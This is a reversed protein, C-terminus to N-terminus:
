SSRLPGVVVFGAGGLSGTGVTVAGGHAEVLEKVIALGLGTGGQDRRRSEDLRTFRDFVRRRDAEPIGPGDDEVTLRWTPSTERRLDVRVSSAAHVSANDLLNRVVRVIADGNLLTQVPEVGTRDFTVGPRRLQVARVEANVLDDLDVLEMPLPHPSGERRALVLLDDLLAAARDLQAISAEIAADASAPKGLSVELTARVGALPSRLEHAADSAFRRQADVSDALRDLTRNFSEGLTQLEDGTSPVAVRRHLDSTAIEDLERRMRDVSRLSRGVVWRTALVALATLGAVLLVTWGLRAVLYSRFSQYRHGFLFTECVTSEDCPIEVVAWTGDDLDLETAVYEDEGLPEGGFEDFAEQALTTSIGGSTEIVVGDTDFAAAFRGSGVDLRGADEFRLLTEPAEVFGIDDALSADARKWNERLILGASLTTVAFTAVGVGISLRTRLSRM